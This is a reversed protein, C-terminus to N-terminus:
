ARVERGRVTNSRAELQKYKRRLRSISVNSKRKLIRFRIVLALGVVVWGFFSIYKTAVQFFTAFPALKHNAAGLKASQILRVFVEPSKNHYAETTVEPHQKLFAVSPRNYKTLVDKDPERNTDFFHWSDSYFVEFAFHGARSIDDYMIVERVKFGKRKFIEMGVISQQSCAAYPYKIIDEPLVVAALTSKLLLPATFAAVPNTYADYYSYGHYFRYRLTKSVVGPFSKTDADAEYVSDCYDELKAMTNLRLLSSDFLDDSLQPPKIGSFKQPLLYGKLSLLFCVFLFAFIAIFFVNWIKRRKINAM